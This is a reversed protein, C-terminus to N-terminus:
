SGNRPFRVDVPFSNIVDITEMALVSTRAVLPDEGYAILDAIAEEQTEYKGLALDDIIKNLMKLNKAM